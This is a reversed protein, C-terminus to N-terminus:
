IDHMYEMLKEGKKMVIGVIYFVRFNCIMYSSAKLMIEMVNETLM